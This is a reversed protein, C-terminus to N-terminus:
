SRTLNLRAELRRSCGGLTKADAFMEIPWQPSYPASAAPIASSVYTPGPPEFSSAIVGLFYGKADFVPSGSMGGFAGFDGEFCPGPNMCGRGNPYIQTVRGLVHFGSASVEISINNRFSGGEGARFGFAYLDENVSPLEYRPRMATISLVGQSEFRLECYCIALDTNKILYLATVSWIDIQQGRPVYVGIHLESGDVECEEKYSNITHLATIIVGPLLFAGSGYIKTDDAGEKVIFGVLGNQIALNCEELISLHSKAKPRIVEIEILDGRRHERVSCSPTGRWTAM